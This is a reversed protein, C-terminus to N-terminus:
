GCSGQTVVYDASIWGSAGQYEVNFWGPVSAMLDLTEERPVAGIRNGDPGDRFNLNHTTTVTCDTMAQAATTSEEKVPIATKIEIAGIDCGGGQPRRAGTQDTDLCFLPHGADIAPSDTQLPLYVPSGIMEGLLPDGSVAPACSDDEILNGINQAFEGVCRKGRGGAIISNRMSVSIRGELMWIGAGSKAWNNLMTAHTISAVSGANAIAGGRLARNGIFTSNTIDDRGLSSIDIAGGHLTARNDVFSSNSIIASDGGANIAGGDGDFSSGTTRNGIFSSSNVVLFSGSSRVLIAGGGGTSINEIFRSDNVIIDGGNVAKIAGKGKTLTLNSVTLKGGDVLFILFKSKGSITHGNGDITIDSTISPLRVDLTFDRLLVITDAGNGAACTGVATDTNAAIIQDPLPCIEPVEILVPMATTTEIAGIDCGSGQPRLTGIQDTKLCFRADATDIAPSGDLLPYYVPSGTAEGLLPKGGTRSACTGDQSFNGTSETFGGACDEARSGGAVISNRLILSGGTRFVADPGANRGGRNDIMTVHTMTSQGGGVYLVAGGVLTTNRDFTTNSINVQALSKIAGGFFGGKNESFRSNTINIRGASAAIAGGGKGPENENRIFSSRNVSLRVDGSTTAIAGGEVAFSDRITSDELTVQASNQLRIAGGSTAKGREMTLNKVTLNGGQVDFIRFRDDGSITHGGGEITITGIIAPLAEDLTIDETITIVDHGTGAPCFGVATNSNASKIHDSLTCVSEQATAIPGAFLAAISILLIYRTHQSLRSTLM